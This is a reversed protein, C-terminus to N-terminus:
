RNTSVVYSETGSSDTACMMACAHHQRGYASKRCSWALRVAPHNHAVLGGSGTGHVDTIPWDAPTTQVQETNPTTRMLEGTVRQPVYIV